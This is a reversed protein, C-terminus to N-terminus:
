SANPALLLPRVLNTLYEIRQNSLQRYDLYPSIIVKHQKNIAFYDDLWVFSFPLNMKKAYTKGAIIHVANFRCVNVSSMEKPSHNSMKNNGSSYQWEIGSFILAHRSSSQLLVQDRYEQWTDVRGYNATEERVNDVSLHPLPHLIKAMVNFIKRWHNSTDSAIAKVEGLQLPNIATMNQYRQLPPANEIYIALSFDSAGFGQSAAAGPIESCNRVM